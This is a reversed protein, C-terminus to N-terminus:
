EQKYSTACADADGDHQSVDVPNNGDRQAPTAAAPHRSAVAFTHANFKIVFIVVYPAPCCSCTLTMPVNRQNTPLDWEPVQLPAENEEKSVVETASVRSLLGLM